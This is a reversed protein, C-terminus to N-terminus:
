LFADCEPWVLRLFDHDRNDRQSGALERKRTESQLTGICCCVFEYLLRREAIQSRGDATQHTTSFAEIWGKHSMM